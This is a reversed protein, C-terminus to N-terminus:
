RKLREELWAMYATLWATTPKEDWSPGHLAWLRKHRGRDPRARREIMAPFRRRLINLIATTSVVSGGEDKYFQKLDQLSVVATKEDDIQELLWRELDTRGMEIMDLKSKTSYADANPRFGTMDLNLFYHMLAARGDTTKRWNELAEGLEIPLKGNRVEWVFYRRSYDSLFFAAPHNSSFLFNMHNPLEFRDVYKLEVPVTEGTILHKLNDADIRSDESRVEEGLVFSTDKTWPNFPRALDRGNITRFHRPGYLAGVTLGVSSKGSGEEASWLIVASLLKAGPHQIPYACWQEFWRRAEAADGFIHDMLRHWLTVDGPKPEQPWGSWLNLAGSATMEPQGPAYEIAAYQRRYHWRMWLDFANELKANRRGSAPLLVNSQDHKCKEPSAFAAVPVKWVASQQMIYAYMKNLEYMYRETAPPYQPPNEFETTDGADQPAADDRSRREFHAVASDAIARVEREPLPPFCRKANAELLKALLDAYALEADKGLLHWAYRHLTDNRQGKGIKPPLRFPESDDPLPDFVAHGIQAAVNGIQTITTDDLPAGDVKWAFAEEATDPPSSPVYYIRSPDTTKPDYPLRFAQCISEYRLRWEAGPIPAALPIVVRYKPHARTSSHTSYVVHAIRRQSLLKTADNAPTGNDVDVFLVNVSEVADARRTAGPRLTYPGILPVSEKRTTIVRQTTLALALEAWSKEVQQKPTRSKVSQFLLYQM